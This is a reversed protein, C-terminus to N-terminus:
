CPPLRSVEVGSSNGVGATAWFAGFTRGIGDGLSRTTCLTIKGAGRGADAGLRFAASASLVCPLWIVESVGEALPDIKAVIKSFSKPLGVWTL